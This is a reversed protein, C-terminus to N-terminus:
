ELVLAAGCQGSVWIHVTKKGELELIYNGDQEQCRIPQHDNRYLQKALELAIQQAAQEDLDQCPTKPMYFAIGNIPPEGTATGEMRLIRFNGPIDDLSYACWYDPHLTDAKQVTNGQADCVFYDPGFYGTLFVNGSDWDVFCSHANALCGGFDSNRWLQTGTLRDIAVLAGNDVYYFRSGPGYGVQDILQLQVLPYSETKTKWIVNGEADVGKILAYEVGSKHDTTHTFRVEVLDGATTTPTPTTEPLTQETNGDDMPLKRDEEPMTASCATLLMCILLTAITKKM